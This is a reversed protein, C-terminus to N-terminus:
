KETKTAVSKLLIVINGPCPQLQDRCTCWPLLWSGQLPFGWGACQLDEAKWSMYRYHAMRALENHTFAEGPKGQTPVMHHWYTSCVKGEWRWNNPRAHVLESACTSCGTILFVFCCFFFWSHLTRLSMCCSRPVLVVAGEGDCAFHYREEHASSARGLAQLGQHQISHKMSLYPLPVRECVCM